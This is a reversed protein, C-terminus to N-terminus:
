QLAQIYVLIFRIYMQIQVSQEIMSEPLMKSVRAKGGLDLQLGRDLVSDLSLRQLGTSEARNWILEPLTLLTVLEKRLRQGFVTNMRNVVNEPLWTPLTCASVTSHSGRVIFADSAGLEVLLQQCTLCCRRSIGIIRGANALQELIDKYTYSTSLALLSVLCAECHLSGTFVMKQLSKFFMANDKLSHLDITINYMLRQSEPTKWDGKSLSQLQSVVERICQRWRPLKCNKFCDLYEVIWGVAVDPQIDSQGPLDEVEEIAHKVEKLLHGPKSSTWETLSKTIDANTIKRDASHFEPFYPSSLLTEWPLM